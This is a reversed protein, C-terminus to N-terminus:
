RSRRVHSGPVVRLCGNSRNTETLYYMFYILPASTAYSSRDAWGWWDQHWHLRQCGPPKSILYGAFFRSNAYRLDRLLEYQRELTLVDRFDENREVGIVRGLNPQSARIAGIEAACITELLSLTAEPLFKRVVAYGDADLTRRIATTDM